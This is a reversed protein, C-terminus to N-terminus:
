EQPAREASDRDLGRWRVGAASVAALQNIAFFAIIAPLPRKVLGGLWTGASGAVLAVSTFTIM